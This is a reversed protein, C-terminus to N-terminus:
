LQTTTATSPYKYYYEGAIKSRQTGGYLLDTSVADIIHGVDRRCTSESYEFGDWSSSLYSISESQIFERNNRL